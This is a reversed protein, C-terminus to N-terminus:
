RNVIEFDIAIGLESLTRSVEPTLTFGRARKASLEILLSVEGGESRLRHIFAAHRRLLRMVILAVGTDVGTLDMARVIARVRELAPIGASLSMDDPLLTPDITSLWYTQNYVSATTALGSSSERPEGAMFCHDPELQLQRSIEDPDISPHRIRLSLQFSSLRAQLRKGAEM